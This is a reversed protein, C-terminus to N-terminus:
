LVNTIFIICKKFIKLLNKKFLDTTITVYYLVHCNLHCDWPQSITCETKLHILFYEFQNLFNNKKFVRPPSRHLGKFTVLKWLYSFLIKFWLVSFWIQSVKNFKVTLNPNVMVLPKLCSFALSTKKRFWIRICGCINFVGHQFNYCCDLQMKSLANSM